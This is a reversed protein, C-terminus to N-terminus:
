MFIKHDMGTGFKLQGVGIIKKIELRGFALSM